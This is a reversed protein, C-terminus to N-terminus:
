LAFHFKRKFRYLLNRILSKKQPSINTKNQPAKGEFEVKNILYFFLKIRIIPWLHIGNVQWENISFDQEIQVIFDKIDVRNQM